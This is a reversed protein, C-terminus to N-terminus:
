LGTICLKCVRKTDLDPFIVRFLLHHNSKLNRYISFDLFSLVLFGWIFCQRHGFYTIIYLGSKYLKCVSFVALFTVLFQFQGKRIDWSKFGGIDVSGMYPRFYFSYNASWVQVIWLGSFTRILSEVFLM